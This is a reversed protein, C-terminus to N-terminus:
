RAGGPSPADCDEFQSCILMLVVLEIFTAGTAKIWVKRVERDSNVKQYQADLSAVLDGLTARSGLTRLQAVTAAVARATDDIRLRQTTVVTGAANTSKVATECSLVAGALNRAALITQIEAVPITSGDPCRLIGEVNHGVFLLATGPEAENAIRRIQAAHPSPPAAAALQTVNGANTFSSEVARVQQVIRGASEAPVEFVNAAGAADNPLLVVTRLERAPRRLAADVTAASGSGSSVAITAKTTAVRRLLERDRLAAEPLVFVDLPRRHALSEKARLQATTLTSVEYAPAKGAHEGIGKFLESCKMQAAVPPTGILSVILVSAVLHRHRM